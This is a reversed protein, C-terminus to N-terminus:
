SIWVTIRDITSWHGAKKEMLVLLGRGCNGPCDSEIYVLAFRDIFTPRSLWVLEAFDPRDTWKQWDFSYSNGFSGHGIQASMAQLPLMVDAPGLIGTPIGKSAGSTRIMEELLRALLDNSLLGSRHDLSRIQRIASRMSRILNASLSLTEPVVIRRREPESREALALSWLAAEDSLRPADARSRCALGVVGAAVLIWALAVQGRTKAMMDRGIGRSM